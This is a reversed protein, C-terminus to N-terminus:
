RNNPSPQIDAQLDYQTQQGHAKTHRQRAPNLDKKECNKKKVNATGMIHHRWSETFIM